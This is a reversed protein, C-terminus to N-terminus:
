LGPPLVDFTDAMKPEWGYKDKGYIEAGPKFGDKGM